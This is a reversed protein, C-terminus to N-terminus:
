DFDAYIEGFKIGSITKGKSKEILDNKADTLSKSTMGESWELYAEIFAALSDTAKVIEGDIPNYKDENFYKSIEDSTKREIKGNITVISEFELETFMRMESNWEEPILKYIKKEMEEKEYERILPSLGVVGEKVPHIIDRTLVEPLDHFLGTFYNNIRRKRCADVELSFLYSLMAVILMHGLVSTEHIRRLHSWRVQFRLEGCLDVFNKLDPYLALRRIGELDYYKEQQAQLESKIEVIEYGNPNMREIIDFEWKTAYFHAASLIKKNLNECPDSLYDQFKKYFNNGLPSIIPGIEKYVLDNLQKYKNPDEKIKHFIQPKLDTVILRQLFEFIGGEIIEIWDFDKNNNEEEFKGLLYAIIMKHAQKDLERLEVPRIKDNWRQMDTADFIKLIFPKRIM